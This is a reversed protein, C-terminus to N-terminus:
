IPKREKEDKKFYDDLCKRLMREVATTKEIGTEECFSELDNWIDIALNINLVKSEKKQRPM